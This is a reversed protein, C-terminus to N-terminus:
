VPSLQVPRPQGPRPPYIEVVQDLLKVIPAEIWQLSSRQLEPGNHIHATAANMNVTLVIPSQVAHFWVQVIHARSAPLNLHLDSGRCNGSPSSQAPSRQASSSQDPSSQDLSGAHCCVLVIHARSAPFNLHLDAGRCSESLSRHRCAHYTLRSQDHKENSAELVAM